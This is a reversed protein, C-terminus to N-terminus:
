HFALPADSIRDRVTSEVRGGCSIMDGLYCFSDVIELSDEGVELRQPVAM